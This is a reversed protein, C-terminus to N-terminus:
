KFGKFLDEEDFTTEPVSVDPLKPPPSLPRCPVAKETTQESQEITADISPVPNKEKRRWWSKKTPNKGPVSMISGTPSLPPATSDKDYTSNLSVRSLFRRMSGPRTSAPSTPSRPPTTADTATVTTATEIDQDKVSNNSSPIPSADYSVSPLNTGKTLPEFTDLVPLQLFNADAKAAM